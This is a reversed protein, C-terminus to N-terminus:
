MTQLMYKIKDWPKKMYNVVGESTVKVGTLLGLGSGLSESSFNERSHPAVAQMEPMRAGSIALFM